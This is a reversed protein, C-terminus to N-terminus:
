EDELPFSLEEDDQGGDAAPQNANRNDDSRTWGLQSPENAQQPREPRISVAALVAALVVAVGVLYGFGTIISPVLSGTFVDSPTVAWFASVGAFGIALGIMATVEEREDLPVRAVLAVLGSLVALGGIAGASRVSAADVVGAIGLGAIVTGLLLTVVGAALLWRQRGAQTRTADAISPMMPPNTPDSYLPEASM